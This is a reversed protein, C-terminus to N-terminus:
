SMVKPILLSEGEHVLERAELPGTSCVSAMKSGTSTGFRRIRVGAAAARGLSSASGQQMDM